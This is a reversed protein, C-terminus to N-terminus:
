KRVTKVYRQLGRVQDATQAHCKRSTAYYKSRAAPNAEDPPIYGPNCPARMMWPSPPKLKAPAVPPNGSCGAVLAAAGVILMARM